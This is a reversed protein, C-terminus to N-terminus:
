NVGKPNENFFIIKILIKSTDSSENHFDFVPNSQLLMFDNPADVKMTLDGEIRVTKLDESYSGDDTIDNFKALEIFDATFSTDQNTAIQIERCPLPTRPLNMQLKKNSNASITTHLVITSLRAM